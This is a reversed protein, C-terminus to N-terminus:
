YTCPPKLCRKNERPNGFPRNTSEYKEYPKYDRHVNPEELNIYLTITPKQSGLGGTTGRTGRMRYQLGTLPGLSSQAPLCGVKVGCREGWLGHNQTDPPLSEAQTPFPYQQCNQGGLLRQIRHFSHSEIRWNHIQLQDYNVMMMM